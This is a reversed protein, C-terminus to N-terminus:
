VECYITSMGRDGKKYKPRISFHKDLIEVNDSKSLDYMKWGYSGSKSYGGIQFARLGQNGATTLGHCHPEVVRLENEYYLSIVNRRNIAECIEKIM